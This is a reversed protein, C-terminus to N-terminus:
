KINGAAKKAEAAKKAAAVKEAMIRAKEKEAAIKEESYRNVIESKESGPETFTNVMSLCKVPCVEVCKNCQVCSFPHISWEYNPKAVTIAGSPCSRMCMGCLICKEIDNEIHGRYRETFNTEGAPYNKTVPKRFLNQLTNGVYQLYAM